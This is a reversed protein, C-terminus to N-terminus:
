HWESEPTDTSGVSEVSGWRRAKGMGAFKGKFVIPSTSARRDCATEGVRELLGELELAALSPSVRRLRAINLALM